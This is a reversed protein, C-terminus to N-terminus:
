FYATTKVLFVGWDETLSSLPQNGNLERSLGATGHMYHGELKLLWFANLDYRVTLALDHQYAGRGLPAAGPVSGYPPNKGKRDALNEFLLSYYVGPTFWPTVHYASMLYFRGSVTQPVAFSPVSTNLSDWWRSYESALLLDHASYEISAVALTAPIQFKVPGSFGSPLQGAMQLQAIQDASFAADGDLRLRQASAGLQLGEIPSQWMLRAGYIYPGRVNSLTSTADATDYFIAGGYLRYELGGADGLPLFGYAEGGTQALLFDRNSVPYVSQPLLIPVRAADVDSTENYLGFPLKTRGIRVGLFDWFRYDLYFWDFRTRYNGLPGLDHTFLQMGVRMRDTLQKSFNIGVESFEFSGHTSEEALYNNSTTKIFGQSVFAHIEIPLPNSSDASEEARAFGSSAVLWAASLISLARRGARLVRPARHHDVTIVKSTAKTCPVSYGAPTTQTM